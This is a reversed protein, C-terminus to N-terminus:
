ARWPLPPPLEFPLRQQLLQLPQQAQVQRQYGGLPHCLLLRRFPKLCCLLRLSTPRELHHASQVKQRHCHCQPRHQWQQLHEHQMLIHPLASM